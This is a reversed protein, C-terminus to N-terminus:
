VMKRVNSRVRRLYSIRRNHETNEYYILSDLSKLFELPNKNSKLENCKRCCPVKNSNSLIGGQSKPVIHDVTRSYEDLSCFCYYCVKLDVKMCGM